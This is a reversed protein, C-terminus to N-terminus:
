RGEWGTTPSGRATCPHTQLPTSNRIRPSPPLLLEQNTHIHALYLSTHFNYMSTTVRELEERRRWEGRGVVWGRM